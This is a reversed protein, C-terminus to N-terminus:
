LYKDHTAVSTLGLVRLVGDQDVQQVNLSFTIASKEFNIKEGSATEFTLLIRKITKTDGGNDRGFVLSDDNM